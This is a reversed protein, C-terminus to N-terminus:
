KLYQYAKAPIDIREITIPPGYTKGGALIAKKHMTTAIGATMNSFVVFLRDNAIYVEGIIMKPHIYFTCCFLTKQVDKKKEYWAKMDVQTAYADGLNGPCSRDYLVGAKITDPIVFKSLNYSTYRQLRSLLVERITKVELEYGVAIIKKSPSQKEQYYDVFRDYNNGLQSM